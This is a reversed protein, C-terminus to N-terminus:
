IRGYIDNTRIIDDEGLYSGSQVEIIELSETGINALRHLEGLPIFTSQNEHLTIVKDGCTVEASGKLVVWHESRKTHKQLSLSAGPNIQIRKVKFKDGIDITDYWGWPRFVKRHLSQEFRNLSDLRAVIKKVQQSQSKNIVLVADATEIIALNNVGVVSVLRHDACVYTNNTDEFMVDGSSANGYDDQGSTEWVSEWSGLDSWGADLIVMKIPFNSKPCQEIVAYDISQDPIAAFLEPDPRIFQQDFTRQEYAKTTAELIKKNFAKLADIWVSARVIFIGANWNFNGSALYAEAIELSPKETFQSVNYEGCPGLIADCKIYGFGTEPKNPPVGLVIISGSQASYIASQMAQNFAKIDIITQDSPTVVLVPDKNEALAHLAAFTLAPATNRSVPELLISTQIEPLERMQDLVLFRHEENTVILSRNIKINQNPLGNVRTIAQQFLSAGESFVLFQKPFGKRSLPWLRTGSGGCLIVPTVETM